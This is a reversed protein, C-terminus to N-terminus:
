NERTYKVELKRHSLPIATGTNFYRKFDRKWKESITSGAEELEEFLKLVSHGIAMQGLGRLLAKVAYEAAQQCKFCCWNYDHSSLDHTASNLTNEAQSFWRKFEDYDFLKKANM